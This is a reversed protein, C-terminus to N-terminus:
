KGCLQVAKTALDMDGADLAARKAGDCNGDRVMRAVRQEVSQPAVRVSAGARDMMAQYNLPAAPKTTDCVVQDLVPRCVTQAQLLLALVIM